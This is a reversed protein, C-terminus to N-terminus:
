RDRDFGMGMGMGVLNPPMFIHAGMMMHYTAVYRALQCRYLHCIHEFMSNWIYEMVSSQACLSPKYHNCKIIYVQVKSFFYTLDM